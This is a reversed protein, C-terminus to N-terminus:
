GIILQTQEESLDTATLRRFFRDTDTLVTGLVGLMIAGAVRSVETEDDNATEDHVTRGCIECATVSRSM